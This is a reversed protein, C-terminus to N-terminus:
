MYYDEGACVFNLVGGEGSLAVVHIIIRFRFLISSLFFRAISCFFVWILRVSWKMLSEGLSGESSLQSLFLIYDINWAFTKRYVANELISNRVFFHTRECFEPDLNCLHSWQNTTQRISCYWSLYTSCLDYM